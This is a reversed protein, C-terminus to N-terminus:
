SWFGVYALGRRLGKTAVEVDDGNEKVAEVEFGM